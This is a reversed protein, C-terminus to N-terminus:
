SIFHSAIPFMKTFGHAVQSCIPFANSIQHLYMSFKIPIQHSCSPSCMSFKPVYRSHMLFKIHVHQFISPYITPVAQPVCQCSPFMDPICQSNCKFVYFVLHSVQQSYSPSCMSLKPVYQSHLPFKIHVCQFSSPFLNPVDFDMSNLASKGAGWFFFFITGRPHTSFRRM